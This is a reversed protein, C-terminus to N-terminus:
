NEFSCQVCVMVNELVGNLHLPFGKRTLSVYFLNVETKMCKVHELYTTM